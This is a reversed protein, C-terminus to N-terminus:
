SVGRYLEPHRTKASDWLETLVNRRCPICTLIVRILVLKFSVIVSKPSLLVSNRHSSNGTDFQQAILVVTFELVSRCVYWPMVMTTNLLLYSTSRELMPLSTQGIM